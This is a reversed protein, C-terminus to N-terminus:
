SNPSLVELYTITALASRCCSTATIVDDNWTMRSSLLALANVVSSSHTHDGELSSRYCQCETPAKNQFIIVRRFLSARQFSSVALCVPEPNYYYNKTEGALAKSTCIHIVIMFGKNTHEFRMKRDCDRITRSGWIMRFRNYRYDQAQLYDESENRIPSIKMPASAVPHIKAQSDDSRNYLKRRDM